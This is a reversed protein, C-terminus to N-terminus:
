MRRADCRMARREEGDTLVKPLESVPKFLPKPLASESVLDRALALAFHNCNSDFIDYAGSTYQESMRRVLGLVAEEPLSTPGLDITVQPSTRRLEAMISEKRMADLMNEDDDRPPTDMAPSDLVGWITYAFERGYCKIGIHPIIPVRKNVSHSLMGTLPGGIEYLTAMVRNEQQYAVEPPSEISEVGWLASLFGASQTGAGQGGDHHAGFKQLHRKASSRM